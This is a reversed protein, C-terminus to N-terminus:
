EDGDRKRDKNKKEKEWEEGIIGKRRSEEEAGIRGRRMRRRKSRM